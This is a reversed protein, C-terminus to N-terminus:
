PADYLKALGYQSQSLYSKLNEAKIQLAGIVKIALHRNLKSQLARIKKQTARHSQETDLENLMQHTQNEIEPLLALMDEKIPAELNERIADIQANLERTKIQYFAIAESYGAAAQDLNDMRNYTYPVLLYSELTPLETNEITQLHGFANIAGLFDKQSLACLGIGHLARNMYKSDLSVRRFTKRANRYFEHQLQSYGLILLLRNNIEKQSEPTKQQLAEEIAIQADTWWGQRIHATAINLRSHGYYESEPVIKEYIKLAERHKKKKQLSIGFLLTAYDRENKSLPKSSEISTLHEITKDIHNQSFYYEALLYHIKSQSFYRGNELGHQALNNASKWINHELLQGLFIPMERSDIHKKILPFNALIVANALAHQNNKVLNIVTSKLAKISPKIYFTGKLEKAAEQYYLHSLVAVENQLAEFEKESNTTAQSTLSLSILLAIASVILLTKWLHLLPLRKPRYATMPKTIM